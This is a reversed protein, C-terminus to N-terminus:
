AAPTRLGARPLGVAGGAARDAVGHEVPPRRRAGRAHNVQQDADDVVVALQYAYVLRDRRAVSWTAAPPAARFLQHARSDTRSEFRIAADSSGSACDRDTRSCRAPGNRTSAPRCTGPTDRSSEDEVAVCGQAFTCARAIRHAWRRRLAALAARTLPSPIRSSQWTCRAMGSSASRKSRACCGTRVLGARRAPYRPRGHAGALKRATAARADLYSGVAAVLSGLHLPDPPRPPSAASARRPYCVPCAGARGVVSM